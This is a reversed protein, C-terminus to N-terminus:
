FLDFSIGELSFFDYLVSDGAQYIVQGNTDIDVRIGGNQMATCIKRKSPRYGSPLTFIVTGSGVIPNTNRLLGRLYVRNNHKYYGASEYTASYNTWGSNLTANTPTEVTEVTYNADAFEKTILAKSDTIEAIDFSPATITGNKLITLANNRNSSDTGNGVEFIPETDIYISGTGGLGLNYAGISLCALSKAITGEGLTTTAYGQSQTNYGMATSRTGSATTGDGMATAISGSANTLQGTSFSVYGSSTASNGLAVATYGSAVVVNGIAVSRNGSAQTRYGFATAYDGDVRTEFGAGFASLGLAGNTTGATASYSLDIANFGINGYNTPNSNKLRWGYGNGEDLKKLEGDIKTWTAAPYDWFYFGQEPSGNGTVFVIMGNQNATPVVVPFNDVKPILIGDTNSPSNTNSASIDLLANPNTTNIGVQAYTFHLCFFALVFFLLAKM